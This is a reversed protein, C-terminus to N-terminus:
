QLVASFDVDRAVYVNLVTGQNITVTPPRNMAEDAARNALREMTRATASEYPQSVITGSASVTNTEPGNEAAAYKFADALMSIMLSSAIRSAWHADYDGPHGAGGLNDVGPSSMTVDLGTPTTIRDWVVAVRPGNVSGGYTGSLKSGKPLLLRKGNVSYVPETLVCSTFGPVDTVIHTELVCRLYAGRLLLTDPKRLYSALTTPARQLETPDGNTGAGPNQLKQQAQMMQDRRAYAAAIAPDGADGGASSAGVGGAASIRRELLSPGRSRDDPRTALAVPPLPAASQELPVPPAAATQQSETPLPPGPVKNPADPVFPKEERPAKAQPADDSRMKALLMLGMLIVLVVIAGLFILAKRNVRQSEEDRLQPAGADLDAASDDVRGYYPNHGAGGRREGPAENEPQNNQNM